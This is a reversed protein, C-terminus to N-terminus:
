PPTPHIVAAVRVLKRGYHASVLVTDLGHVDPLVWQEIHHSAELELKPLRLMDYHLNLNSFSVLM